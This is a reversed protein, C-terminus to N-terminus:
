NIACEAALEPRSVSDSLSASCSAAAAAAIRRSFSRTLVCAAWNGRDNNNASLSPKHHCDRRNIDLDDISIEDGDWPRSSRVKLAPGCKVWTESM